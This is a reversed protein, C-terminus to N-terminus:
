SRRRVQARPPILGVDVDVGDVWGLSPDGVVVLTGGWDDVVVVVGTAVVV